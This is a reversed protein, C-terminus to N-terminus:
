KANSDGKTIPVLRAYVNIYGSLIDAFCKMLPRHENNFLDPLPSNIFLMTTLENIQFEGNKNFHKLFGPAVFISMDEEYRDNDIVPWWEPRPKGVILMGDRTDTHFKKIRNPLAANEPIDETNEEREPRCGETRYITRFVFGKGDRSDHLERIAGWLRAGLPLDLKMVNIITSVLKGLQRLREEQLEELSRTESLPTDNQNSAVFYRKIEEVNQLLVARDAAGGNARYNLIHKEVAALALSANTEVKEVEQQRSKEIDRTLRERKELIKAAGGRALHILNHMGNLLDRRQSRFKELAIRATEEDGEAKQRAAEARALKAQLDKAEKEAEQQSTEAKCLKTRIEKLERSHIMMLAGLGMTCVAVIFFICGVEEGQKIFGYAGIGTQIVTASVIIADKYPINAKMMRLNLFLRLKREPEKKTAFM